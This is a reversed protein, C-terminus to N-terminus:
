RALLFNPRRISFFLFPPHIVALDQMWAPIQGLLSSPGLKKQRGLCGADM